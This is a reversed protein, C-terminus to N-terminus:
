RSKATESKRSKKMDAARRTAGSIGNDSDYEAKVCASTPSIAGRKGELHEGSVNLTTALM